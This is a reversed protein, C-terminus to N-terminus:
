KIVVVMTVGDMISEERLTQNEILSGGTGHTFRVSGSVNFKLSM